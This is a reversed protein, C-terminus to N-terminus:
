VALGIVEGPKPSYVARKIAPTPQKPMIEMIRCRYNEIESDIPSRFNLDEVFRGAACEPHNAKVWSFTSFLETFDTDTVNCLRIDLNAKAAKSLQWKLEMLDGSIKALERLTQKYSDLKKNFRELIESNHQQELDAIASLLESRLKEGRAQLGLVGDATEDETVRLEAIRATYEGPDASNAITEQRNRRAEILQANTKHHLDIVQKLTQSTESLKDLASEISKRNKDIVAM